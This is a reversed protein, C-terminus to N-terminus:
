CKTYVQCLSMLSDIMLEITNMLIWNQEITANQVYDVVQYKAYAALIFTHKTVLLVECGGFCKEYLTPDM